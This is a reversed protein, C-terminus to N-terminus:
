IHTYVYICIYTYIHIYKYIAVSKCSNEAEVESALVSFLDSVLLLHYSCFSSASEQCWPLHARAWGIFPGPGSGEHAPGPGAWSPILIHIYVGVVLYVFYIYIYIYMYINM